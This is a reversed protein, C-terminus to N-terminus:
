KLRILHKNGIKIVEFFEPHKNARLVIQWPEPFKGDSPRVWIDLEQNKEALEDAYMENNPQMKLLYVMVDHTLTVKKNNKYRNFSM